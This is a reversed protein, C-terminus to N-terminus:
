RPLGRLLAKESISDPSKKEDNNYVVVVIQDILGPTSGCINVSRVIRGLTKEAIEKAMSRAVDINRARIVRDKPELVLPIPNLNRNAEELTKPSRVPQEFVRLELNYRQKAM